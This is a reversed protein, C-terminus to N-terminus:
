EQQRVLAIEIDNKWQFPNGSELLLRSHYGKHARWVLAILDLLVCEVICNGDIEFGRPFLECSNECKSFKKETLKNTNQKKMPKTQHFILFVKPSVRAM